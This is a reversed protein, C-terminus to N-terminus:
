ASGEQEAVITQYAEAAEGRFAFPYIQSWSLVWEYERAAEDNEGQAQLIKARVYHRYGTENLTLAVDISQLAAAENGLGLQARASYEAIVPLQEPSVAESQQISQLLGLGRQFASNAGDGGDEAQAILAQARALNVDLSPVGASGALAEADDLTTQYRGDRLAAVMRLAQIQPDGSLDYANTFDERALNYRRQRMYINGRALLTEVTSANADGTLAQSYAILALDLNGEAIRADGLLKYAYTSGPYYHLYDQTYLVARGPSRDALASAIRLQQAVETTPDIYLALFAQYEALDYDRQRLYITGKEVILNVNNSLSDIELGQDLIDLAADDDSGLAFRRSLLIYPDALRPDGEVAAEAREQVQDLYDAAEANSGAAIADQALQWYIHAFGTDVLPKYNDNPAEDLRSEAEDMTDLASNTDGEALYALAEYYYPNPNFRNETLEREARLTPLALSVAGQNLASVSDVVPKELVPPYIATAPPPAYPNATPVSPDITTTPTPSIRPTVSPTPTFGPTPTPTVTPTSTSTATPAIVISRLDDNNLVIITGVVGLVILFGVIAATVYLRLIVVDGEGARRRTKHTWKIDSPLPLNYGRLMAEVQRQAEAVGETSPLPVGPPQSMIDAERAATSASPAEATPAHAPQPTASFPSSPMAGELARLATENNPNIELIKQLCFVRERQDRAVSALWLWAAENDPEIRIAQQLLQRAQDKQGAKAAAIGQQRLERAQDSSV